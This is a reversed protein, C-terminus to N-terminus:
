RTELGRATSTRTVKNQELLVFTADLEADIRESAWGLAEGLVVAYPRLSGPTWVSEYGWTTSVFLVDVLRQAMEKRAAHVIPAAEGYTARLGECATESRLPTTRTPHLHSLQPFALDVAEESMARYTTYKGGTVRIVGEKDRWIRHERSTATASRSEDLVLPRLSSFSSIPEQDSKLVTRTVERLYLTEEESIRVDDPTGSHDAETTGVLTFNSGTGFPVFFVM